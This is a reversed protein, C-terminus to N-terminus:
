YLAFDNMLLLTKYEHAFQISAFFENLNFIIIRVSMFADVIQVLHRIFHNFLASSAFIFRHGHLDRSYDSVLYICIELKLLTLKTNSLTICLYSKCNSKGRITKYYMAMFLNFIMGQPPVERNM